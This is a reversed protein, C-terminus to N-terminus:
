GPQKKHLMDTGCHPCRPRGQAAPANLVSGCEPCEYRHNGIKVKTVVHPISLKPYPYLKGPKYPGHEPGRIALPKFPKKAPASQQHKRILDLLTGARFADLLKKERANLAVVFPQDVLDLLYDTSVALAQALKVILSAAPDSPGSEWRIIQQPSVDILRALTDPTYGRAERAQRLRDGRLSM